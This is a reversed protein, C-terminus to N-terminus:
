VREETAATAQRATKLVAGVAEEQVVLIVTAQGMSVM